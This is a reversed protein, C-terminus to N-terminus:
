EKTVHEVRKFLDTVYMMLLHHKDKEDGYKYLHNYLKSARFM